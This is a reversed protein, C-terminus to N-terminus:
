HFEAEGMKRAKAKRESIDQVKKIAATTDEYYGLHGAGEASVEMKEKHPGDPFVSAKGRAGGWFSHDDIKQGGAM